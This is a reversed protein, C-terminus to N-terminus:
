GGLIRQAVGPLFYPSCPLIWNRLTSVVIAGFYSTKRYHSESLPKISSSGQLRSMFSSTAFSM